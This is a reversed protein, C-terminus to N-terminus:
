INPRRVEVFVWSLSRLPAPSKLFVDKLSDDEGVNVREVVAIVHSTLGPIIFSDGESIEFARPVKVFFNGDGRGELQLVFGTGLMEAEVSGGSTSYLAANSTNASATKISGVIQGSPAFVRSGEFVGQSIGVDLVLTDFFSQPPKILVRAIVSYDDPVRGLMDKLQRNEELLLNTEVSQISASDSLLSRNDELRWPYVVGSVANRAIGSVFWVPKLTKEWVVRSQNPFAISLLLVLSVLALSVLPMKARSKKLSPHFRYTM